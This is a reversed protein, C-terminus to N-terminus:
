PSVNQAAIFMQKDAPNTIMEWSVNGKDRLSVGTKLSSVIKIEFQRNDHKHVLFSVTVNM